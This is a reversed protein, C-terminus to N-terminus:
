AAEGQQTPKLQQAGTATPEHTAPQAAPQDATPAEDTETLGGRARVWFYRAVLSATFLVLAALLAQDPMAVMAVTVSLGALVASPVERKGRISDMTMVIFLATLAFEFGAIPGPLANAVLVGLLGGAVWYGQMCLQGTVMRASLVKHAPMTTYTAYAEDIMAYMSYWRPWGKRVKHLPFSFPYFVHRFNLAFVTVAITILPAYAALLSVLFLEVSGAFIGISLAPTLWWPLGAQIVLMGLAFGLPFIGLGVGLSDKMGARIESSRTAAAYQAPASEM